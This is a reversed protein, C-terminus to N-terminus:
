RKNSPVVPRTDSVTKIELFAAEVCEMLSELDPLGKADGTLLLNVHDRYATASCILGINFACPLVAFVSSAPQGDAHYVTPPLVVSTM